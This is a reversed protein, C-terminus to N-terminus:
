LLSREKEGGSFTTTGREEASKTVPEGKKSPPSLSRNRKGGKNCLHNLIKPLDSRGKIPLSHDNEPKRRKRSRPMTPRFM